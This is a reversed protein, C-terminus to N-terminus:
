AYSKLVSVVVHQSVATRGSTLLYTTKIACVDSADTNCVSYFYSVCYDNIVCLVCVCVRTSLFTIYLLILRTLSCPAFM